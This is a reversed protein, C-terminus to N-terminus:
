RRARRDKLVLSAYVLLRFVFGLALLMGTAQPPGGWRGLAVDPAAKGDPTTEMWKTYGYTEALVERVADHSGPQPGAACGPPM